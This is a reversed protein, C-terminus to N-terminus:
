GVDVNDIDSAFVVSCDFCGHHPSDSDNSCYSTKYILEAVHSMAALLHAREKDCLEDYRCALKNALRSFVQDALGYKAFVPSQLQLNETCMM